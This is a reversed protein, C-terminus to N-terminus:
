HAGARTGTQHAEAVAEINLVSINRRWAAPSTGVRNSFVRTLHSQDRFGCETAIEVLPRDSSQMMDKAAQVRRDLLWKHPPLGTSQRFARIFHRVSLHCADAVDAVHVTRSLDSAMMEAARRQQWPALGGVPRASTGGVYARILHFQLALFLEDVFLPMARHSDELAPILSHALSRITPDAVAVGQPVSLERAALLDNKRALRDLGARPIYFQVVDFPGCLEAAIDSRLDYLCTTDAPVVVDEVQKGDIRVARQIVPRLHLSVVLADDQELKEIEHRSPSACALRTIAFDSGGFRRAIMPPKDSLGLTKAMGRGFAGSPAARSREGM